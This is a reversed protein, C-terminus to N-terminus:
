ECISKVTIMLQNTQRILCLASIFVANSHGEKFYEKLTTSFKKSYKVFEKKRQEISQKGSLTPVFVGIENVVDLLKKIASAIEKITELFTKRDTIEDPIRSLIAKLAASKRNLDQFPEESCLLYHENIDIDTRCEQLRLVVENINIKLDAKEIIESLLNYCFGPHHQELNCFITLLTESVNKDHCELQSFVPKLVVSLSLTSTVVEGMKLQIKMLKLVIYM